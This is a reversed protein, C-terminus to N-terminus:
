NTNRPSKFFRRFTSYLTELFYQKIPINTDERVLKGSISCGETLRLDIEKKEQDTQLWHLPGYFGKVKPQIMYIKHPLIDQFQYNGNMDTKTKVFHSEDLYNLDNFNKNEESLIVKAQAVFDGNPYIVKGKIIPLFISNDSDQNSVLTTEQEGPTVEKIEIRESVLDNISQEVANPLKAVHPPEQPTNYNMYIAAAGVILSVAAGLKTKVGLTFGSGLTSTGAATGIKTGLPTALPILAFRWQERNGRYDHDLQERLQDLARKLRVRITSRPLKVHSAIESTSLGKFYHLLITSRYPEILALAANVVKRQMEAEQALEETSPLVEKKAAHKERRSRRSETRHKRRVINRVIGALWSRPHKRIVNQNGFAAAGLKRFSMM